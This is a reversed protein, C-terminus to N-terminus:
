FQAPLLLMSYGGALYPDGLTHVTTTLVTVLLGYPVILFKFEGGALSLLIPAATTLFKRVMEFVEFWWFRPKYGSWLFALPKISPDMERQQHSWVEKGMTLADRSQQPM